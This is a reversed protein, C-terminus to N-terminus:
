HNWHSVDIGTLASFMDNRATFLERLYEEDESRIPPIAETALGKLANQLVTPLMKKASSVLRKYRKQSGSLRKFLRGLSNLQYSANAHLDSGESPSRYDIQLFDCVEKVQGEPNEVLNEFLIVKFNQLPFFALFNKLQGYYDSAILYRDSNRIVESFKSKDYGARVNHWYSSYTRQVPNRVVYIFRANPNLAAIRRPIDQFQEADYSNELPFLDTPGRTYDPSADLLVTAEPNLFRARYWDEGKDFNRSFYRPEKPSSLCITAQKDLLLALSTTGAKQAGIIFCSPPFPM